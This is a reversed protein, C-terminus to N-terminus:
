LVIRKRDEFEQQKGKNWLELPTYYDTIKSIRKLNHQESDAPLMKKFYGCKPCSYFDYNFTFSNLNQNLLSITQNKLLDLNENKPSNDLWIPLTSNNQIVRASQSHIQSKQQLSIDLSYNAHSSPTYYVAETEVNGNVISKANIPFHTLDLYAFRYSVFEAPEEWVTFFKNQTRSYYKARDVLFKLIKLGLELSSKDEHLHSNTHFYVMEDLGIFGFLLAQRNLDLLPQNNVLENCLPLRGKQLLTRIIKYKLQLIDRSLDMQQELIEFIKTEDGNAKYAIRPLNISISQLAGVNVYSQHWDFLNPNQENMLYSSKHENSFISGLYGERLWPNLSNIFIPTGMNAAETFLNLSIDPNQLDKPSLLVKHKPFAFLRNRADGQTYVKSLANFFLRNEEEYDLYTGHIIGGPGIADVDKLFDPIHPSCIISSIPVYSGRSFYQQNLEFLFTQALQAIESQSLKSLYPSLFTNFYLYNQEGSFESNVFALWKCAHLVAVTANRAPNSMTFTLYGAPPIGHKLIMRLDWSQSFPRMDFYRLSHIHIDGSLHSRAQDTSLLKLLAYESALQGAAWRHINEPASYEVSRPNYNTHLLVEYDAIPMGIRTYKKRAEEFNLESLVSCVLERIHPGSLFRIGSAIIRRVVLETVKKADEAPLEAEKIISALINKPNFKQVDGTSMFVEPLLKHIYESNEKHERDSM